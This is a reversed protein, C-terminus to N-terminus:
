KKKNKINSTIHFLDDDDSINEINFELEQHKSKKSHKRHSTEDDDDETIANKYSNKNNKNNKKKKPVNNSIENDFQQQQYKQNKQTKKNRKGKSPSELEENDNIIQSIESQQKSLNKKKKQSKKTPSQEEESETDCKGGFIDNYIENNGHDVIYTKRSSNLNNNEEIFKKNKQLKKLAKIEKKSLKPQEDNLESEDKLFRNTCRNNEVPSASKKMNYKDLLSYKYNISNQNVKDTTPNYKNSCTNISPPYSSSFLPSEAIVTKNKNNKSMKIPSSPKNFGPSINQPTNLKNNNIKTHNNRNHNKTFPSSSIVPISPKNNKSRSKTPSVLLEQIDEKQISTPNVIIALNKNESLKIPTTKSGCLIQIQKKDVSIQISGRKSVPISSSNEMQSSSSQDSQEDSENNKDIKSNLADSVRRNKSKKSKIFGETDETVYQTLNSNEYKKFSKKNKKSNNIIENEEKTSTGEKKPNIDQDIEDKEYISIEGKLSNISNTNNYLAVLDIGNSLSQNNDISEVNKQNDNQISINNSSSPGDNSLLGNNNMTETFQNKDIIMINQNALLNNVKKISIKNGYSNKNSISLARRNHYYKAEFAEQATEAEDFEYSDDSYDDDNNDYEDEDNLDNKDIFIENEPKYNGPKTNKAVSPTVDTTKENKELNRKQKLSPNQPTNPIKAIKSKGM